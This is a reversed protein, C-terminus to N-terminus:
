LVRVPAGVPGPKSWARGDSWALGTPSQGPKAPSAQKTEQLLSFINLGPLGLGTPSPPGPRALGPGTPAGTFSLLSKTTIASPVAGQPLDDFYKLIIFHYSTFITNNIFNHIDYISIMYIYHYSKSRSFGLTDHWTDYHHSIIYIVIIRFVTLAMCPYWWIYIQLNLLSTFFAHRTTDHTIDFYSSSFYIKNTLHHTDYSPNCWPPTM